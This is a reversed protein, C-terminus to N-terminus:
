TSSFVYASGPNSDSDGNLLAGVVIAEGSLAVAYGFGDGSGGDPATLKEQHTWTGGSRVFVFASGANPGIDDDQHSGVVVTEGSVSVSFGFFDQVGGVPAMLKAEQTWTEGSRSFVYASGANSGNDDDQHAGVVVIDGSVSVASGFFDEAGPDPATLKAQEAWTYGTRVYVYASGSDTSSDDDRDAGVVVTDGWISVSRGFFDDPAADSATLKAQETWTGGSRVFVYASGQNNLSDRDDFSGVVVTHHHCNM